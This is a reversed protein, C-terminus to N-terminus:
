SHFGSAGPGAASCVQSHDMGGFHYQGDFLGEQRFAAVGQSWFLIGSDDTKGPINERADEATGQLRTGM